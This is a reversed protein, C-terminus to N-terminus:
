AIFLSTSPNSYSLPTSTPSLLVDPTTVSLESVNPNYYKSIGIILIQHTAGSPAAYTLIPRVLLKYLTLQQTLIVNLRPCSAPFNSPFRWHSQTQSCTPTKYFPTEFRTRPRPISYLPELSYRHTSIPTTTQTISM